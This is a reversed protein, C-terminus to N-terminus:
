IHDQQAVLEDSWDSKPNCLTIFEVIVRCRCHMEVM